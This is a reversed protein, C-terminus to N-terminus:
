KLKEKLLKSVIAGDEKGKLKPMVAGMAKGFDAPGFGQGNLTEDIIKAVEAESMQDPLYKQLIAIEDQEKKALEPRNGKTYAEVSDKRRKMESQILPMIEEESFEKQKAIEENKIRTKLMRLTDARLADKAKLSEKLDNEIQEKIM